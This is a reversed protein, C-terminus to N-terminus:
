FYPIVLAFLLYQQAITCWFLLLIMKYWKVFLNSEAVKPKANAACSSDRSIFVVPVQALGVTIWSRDCGCEGNSVKALQVVNNVGDVCKLPRLKVHDLKCKFWEYM